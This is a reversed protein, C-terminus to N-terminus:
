GNLRGEQLDTYIGVLALVPWAFVMAADRGDFKTGDEKNVAAVGAYVNYAGLLYLATATLFMIM